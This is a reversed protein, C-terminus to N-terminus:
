RVTLKRRLVGFVTILSSGLMVFTGCEPTGVVDFAALPPGGFLEWSAGYDRSILSYGFIGQDNLNWGAWQDDTPLAVIDYKVGAILQPHLVSLATLPPNDGFGLLPGLTWTELVTGPNDNNDVTLELKLLNPGSHWVLALDIQELPVTVAPTFQWSFNNCGGAPQVCESQPGSIHYASHWDYEYNPGFTSFVVIDANAPISVICAILAFLGVLQIRKTM